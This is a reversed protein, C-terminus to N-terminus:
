LDQTLLLVSDFTQTRVYTSAAQTDAAEYGAVLMALGSTLTSDPYAKVLFQGSGISTATTWASGCSAGGVLTAAASNICSGGVIILNKTAVSSVESDKVLVAGGEPM